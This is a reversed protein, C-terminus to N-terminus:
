LKKMNLDSDSDDSSSSVERRRSKLKDKMLKLQREKEAEVRNHKKDTGKSALSKSSHGGSRSGSSESGSKPNEVDKRLATVENTLLNIKQLAEQLSTLLEGNDGSDDGKGDTYKACTVSSTCECVREKEKDSM